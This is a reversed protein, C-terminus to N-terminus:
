YSKAILILVRCLSMSPSRWRSAGLQLGLAAFVALVGSKMQLKSDGFDFSRAEGM